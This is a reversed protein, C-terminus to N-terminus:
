GRCEREVDAAIMDDYGFDNGLREYVRLAFSYDAADDVTWRYGITGRGRDDKLRYVPFNQQMWATVHERDYFAVASRHAATLADRTFVEVDLGLPWTIGGLWLYQPGGTEAPPNAWLELFGQVAKDILAPDKFPDDATIRVVADADPYREAAWYFRALVDDRSGRYVDVGLGEVHAALVDDEPEDTTCVCVKDVLEARSVRHVIQEIMPVGNLPAMSKGPLRTSGMRAQILALIM